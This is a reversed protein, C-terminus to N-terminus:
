IGIFSHKSEYGVKYQRCLFRMAKAGTGSTLRKCAVRRNKVRFLIQSPWNKAQICLKVIQERFIDQFVFNWRYTCMADHGKIKSKKRYFRKKRQTVDAM